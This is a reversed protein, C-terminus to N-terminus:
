PQLSPMLAHSKLLFVIYWTFLININQKEKKAFTLIQYIQYNLRPYPSNSWIKSSINTWKLNSSTRIEEGFSLSTAM